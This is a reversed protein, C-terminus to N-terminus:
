FDVERGCNDCTELADGTEHGCYPCQARTVYIWSKHQEKVILIGSGIPYVHETYSGGDNERVEIDQGHFIGDVFVKKGSDYYRCTFADGAEDFRLDELVELIGPDETMEQGSELPFFVVLLGNKHLTGDTYGLLGEFHSDDIELDAEFFHDTTDRNIEQDRDGSM